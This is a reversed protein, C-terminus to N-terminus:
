IMRCDATSSAHAECMALYPYLRIHGDIHIYMIHANIFMELRHFMSQHGSSLHAPEIGYLINLIM